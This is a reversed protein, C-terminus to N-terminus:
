REQHSAEEVLPQHPTAPAPGFLVDEESEGTEVVRYRAKPLWRMHVNGEADASWDAVFAYQDPSEERELRVSAHPKARCVVEHASLRLFVGREREASPLVSLFQRVGDRWNPIEAFVIYAADAQIEAFRYYGHEDTETRKMYYRWSRTDQCYVHAGAIPRGADDHVVGHVIRSSPDSAEIRDMQGLGFSKLAPTTAYVFRSFAPGGYVAGGRIQYFGQRLGLLQVEGAESAYVPGLSERSGGVAAYELPLYGRELFGHLVGDVVARPKARLPSTEETVGDMSERRLNETGAVPQFRYKPRIGAIVTYRALDGGVESDVGSSDDSDGPENDLSLALRANDPLRVFPGDADEEMPFSQSWFRRTLVGGSNSSRSVQSPTLPVRQWGALSANARWSGYGDMVLVHDLRQPAFDRHEFFLIKLGTAPSPFRYHGEQDTTCTAEEKWGGSEARRFLRVTCNAVSQGSGDTVDGDILRARDETWLSRPSAQLRHVHATWAEHSAGALPRGLSLLGGVVIVVVVAGLAWAAVPKSRIVKPSLRRMM